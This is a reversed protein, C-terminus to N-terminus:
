SKFKDGLDIESLLGNSYLGGIWDHAGVIIDPGNGAPAAITFNNRVDGFNMTQIRVPINYKSTFEKGAAETIATRDSNVWITLTGEISPLPTPTITPTPAEETAAPDQAMTIQSNMLVIALLLAACMVSLLKLPQKM